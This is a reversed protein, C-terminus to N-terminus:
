QMVGWIKYDVPKLTQVLFESLNKKTLLEKQISVINQKVDNKQM